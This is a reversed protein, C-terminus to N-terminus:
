DARLCKSGLSLNMWGYKLVRFRELRGGGGGRLEDADHLQDRLDRDRLSEGNDKEREGHHYYDGAALIQELIVLAHFCVSILVFLDHLDKIFHVIYEHVHEPLFDSGPMDHLDKLVMEERCIDHEEESGILLTHCVRM